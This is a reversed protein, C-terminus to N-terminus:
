YDLLSCHGEAAEVSRIQPAFTLEPGLFVDLDRMVTYMIHVCVCVCVCLCACAYLFSHYM